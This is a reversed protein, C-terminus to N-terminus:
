VIIILLKVFLAALPTHYVHNHFILKSKKHNTQQSSLLYPIKEFLMLNKAFLCTRPQSKYKIYVTKPIPTILFYFNLLLPLTHSCVWLCGMVQVRKKEGAQERSTKHNSLWPCFLCPVDSTKIPFLILHLLCQCSRKCVGVM